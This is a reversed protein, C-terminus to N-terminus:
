LSLKLFVELFVKHYEVISRSVEVPDLFSDRPLCLRLSALSSFIWFEGLSHQSFNDRCCRCYLNLYESLQDFIVKFVSDKLCEKMYECIVFVLKDIVDLQTSGLQQQHLNALEALLRSYYPTV